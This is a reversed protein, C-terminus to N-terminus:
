NLRSHCTTCRSAHDDVLWGGARELRRRANHQLRMEPDNAQNTIHNVLDFMTPHNGEFAISLTDEMNGITRDPLGAERAMRRFHGTYDADAPTNRLDYFAAIDGEVRDFSESIIKEFEELITASDAGRADIKLGLDPVEMGNTCALRYMIPQAWPALNQKRNQGVRVGGKTLDGVKPDGGIGRDFADPVIADLRFDDANTWWDLVSSEPPMVNLLCEVMPAVEMRTMSALYAEDIGTEAYRVVLPKDESRAIRHELIFQQEDAPLRELFKYPVDYFQALAQLGAETAPVEAGGLDIVHDGTLDVKVKTSSDSWTDRDDSAADLVQTLTPFTTDRFFM